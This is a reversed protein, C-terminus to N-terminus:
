KSAGYCTKYDEVLKVLEDASIPLSDIHITVNDNKKSDSPSSALVLVDEKITITFLYGNVDSIQASYFEVDKRVSALDFWSIKKGASSIEQNNLTVLPDNNQSKEYCSAGLVILGAAGLFSGSAYIEANGQNAKGYAIIALGAAALIGGGLIGINFPTNSTYIYVVDGDQKIRNNKPAEPPIGM